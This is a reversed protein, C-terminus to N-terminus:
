ETKDKRQESEEPTFSAAYRKNLKAENHSIIEDLTLNCALMYRTFCFWVIMLKAPLNAQPKNYIVQKKISSVLDEIEITLNKLPLINEKKIQTVSLDCQNDNFLLEPINLTARGLVIYWLLDGMEELTNHASTSLSLELMETSLGLAVHALQANKETLETRPPAAKSLVFETYTSLDM